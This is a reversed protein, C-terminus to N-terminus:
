AAEDERELAALEVEVRDRGLKKARYMATDARRITEGLDEGAVAEAVGFSGTVRIGGPWDRNAIVRRLREAIRQAEHSHTAPCILVFEEGGWRAFLDRRQIHARTLDALERIVQDGVNHGHQDNIRKFHDIDIFILSLPFLQQEGEQAVRSLAQALGNRNLIGTLPDQGALQAYAQSQVRLANNVRQLSWQSRKSVKLQRRTMARDTVLYGFVSLLWVGIVGWLLTATRIWKGRFEIREVTIRHRGPTVNGGTSVELQVVNDFEAGAYQVPTPHETTWWSAVTLQSLRVELPQAYAAPEYVLESVKMSMDDGVKSYGPNFNRVFIRVQQHPEAGEARIWLRMSDYGSLDIGNPASQLLISAECYPYEYGTKISCDLVLKGHERAVRADSHGGSEHDDISKVPYPSDGSIELVSDMACRNWALVLVTAAILGALLRKLTRNNM